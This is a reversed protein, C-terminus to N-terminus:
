AAQTAASSHCRGQFDGRNRVYYNYEGGGVMDRGCTSCNSKIYHRDKKLPGDTEDGIWILEM